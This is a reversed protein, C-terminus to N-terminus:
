PTTMVPLTINEEVADPSPQNKFVTHPRGRTSIEWLAQRCDLGISRFADADALKELASEAIGADRLTNINSYLIIRKEVLLDIDEKRLGKVQRFGLRLM